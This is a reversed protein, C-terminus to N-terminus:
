LEEEVMDLVHFFHSDRVEDKTNGYFQVQGSWGDDSWDPDSCQCFGEWLFGGLGKEITLEHGRM